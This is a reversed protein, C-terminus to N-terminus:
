GKWGGVFRRRWGLAGGGGGRGGRGGARQQISGAAQQTVFIHLHVGKRSRAVLMAVDMKTFGADHEVSYASSRRVMSSLHVQLCM